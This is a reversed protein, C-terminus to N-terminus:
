AVMDQPGLVEVHSVLVLHKPVMQAAQLFHLNRSWVGSRCLSVRLLGEANKVSSDQAHYFKFVVSIFPIDGSPLPWLFSDPCGNEGTPTGEIGRPCISEFQFTFAPEWKPSEAGTAQPLISLGRKLHVGSAAVVVVVLAKLVAPANMMIGTAQVPDFAGSTGWAWFGKKAM